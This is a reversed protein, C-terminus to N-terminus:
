AVKVRNLEIYAQIDQETYYTKGGIKTYSIKRSARLNQLLQSTFLGADIGHMKGAAVEEASYYKKEYM